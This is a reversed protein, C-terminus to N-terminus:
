NCDWVQNSADRPVCLFNPVNLAAVQYQLNNGIWNDGFVVAKDYVGGTYSLNVNASGVSVAENGLNNWYFSVNAEIALGEGRVGYTVLTTACARYGANPTCQIASQSGNYGPTKPNTATVPDNRHQFENIKNTLSKGLPSNFGIVVIVICAIFELVLKKM